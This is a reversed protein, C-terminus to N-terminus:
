FALRCTGGAALGLRHDYNQCAWSKQREWYPLWSAAPVGIDSGSFCSTQVLFHFPRKPALITAGGAYHGVDAFPAFPTKQNSPTM